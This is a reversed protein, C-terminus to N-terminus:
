ERIQDLMEVNVTVDAEIEQAFINMGFVLFVLTFLFKRM